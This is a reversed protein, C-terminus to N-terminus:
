RGFLTLLVIHTPLYILSPFALMLFGLYALPPLRKQPKNGIGFVWNVNEAPDTLWYSLPLVSWALVSQAIWAKSEYGLRAIMWLLLIPLFVHFLSLARLYMPKGRDFMYDTLGSIRKGTVLQGFFGLNWLIDPILVGVAMMSALFASEFWLAMVTVLLAIDSFWLLNGRSYKALYVAMTVAVYFTYALKIWLPIV